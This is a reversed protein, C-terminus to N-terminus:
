TLHAARSVATPAPRPGSAFHSTHPSSLDPRPLLLHTTVTPGPPSDPLLILHTNLSRWGWPCRGLMLSQSPGPCASRAECLSSLMVRSVVSGSPGPGLVSVWVAGSVLGGMPLSTPPWHGCGWDHRGVLCQGPVGPGRTEDEDKGLGVPSCVPRSTVGTLRPGKAVHSAVMVWASGRRQSRMASNPLGGDDLSSCEVELMVCMECIFFALGLHVECHTLVLGWSLWQAGGVGAGLPNPASGLPGPWTVKGPDQPVSGARMSGSPPGTALGWSHLRRHFLQGPLSAWGVGSGAARRPGM